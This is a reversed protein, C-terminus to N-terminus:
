VEQTMEFTHGNYEFKSITNDETIARALLCTIDPTSGYGIFEMFDEGVAQMDERSTIIGSDKAILNKSNLWEVISALYVIKGAFDKAKDANQVGLSCWNIGLQVRGARRDAISGREQIMIERDTVREVAQEFAALVNEDIYKM